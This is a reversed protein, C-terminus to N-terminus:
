QDDALSADLCGAFHRPPSGVNQGGAPWITALGLDSAVRKVRPEAVSVFLSFGPVVASRTVAAKNEAKRSPVIGNGREAPGVPQDSGQPSSVFSVCEAGHPLSM